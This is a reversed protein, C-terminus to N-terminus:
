LSNVPYIPTMGKLVEIVNRAAKTKLEVISEETLYACHDTLIVNQMTKFPSNDALPEQEFVDLGAAGIKGSTLGEILAETEIIAGRATNVIIVGDQMAEIEERGILHRNEKTLPINVSIFNSKTILTKFDVPEVGQGRIFQHPLNPDHVMIKTLGFTSMKRTLARGVAGFGLIGLIKGKMRRPPVPTKINWRGERVARDRTALSRVCALLLAAAHDSTDEAAYEPVRTVWIGAKTAAEVDVNDYGVGYRSIVKCKEFTNIIRGTMPFLNNLVADATSLRDIAEAESKLDLIDLEADIEGLIEREVDYNGHRDDTVFVKFSSM